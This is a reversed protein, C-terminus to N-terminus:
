LSLIRIRLSMLSLWELNRIKEKYREVDSNVEMASQSDEFVNKQAIDLNNIEVQLKNTLELDCLM